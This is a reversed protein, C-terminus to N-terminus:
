KWTITTGASDKLFKDSVKFGESRLREKVSEYLTGDIWRKFHGSNIRSEICSKVWQYQEEPLNTKLKGETMKKAEIANM